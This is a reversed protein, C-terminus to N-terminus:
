CYKEPDEIEKWFKGETGLPVEKISVFESHSDLYKKNNNDEYM